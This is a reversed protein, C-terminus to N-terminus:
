VYGRAVRFAELYPAHDPSVIWWFHNPDSFMIIFWDGKHRLEPKGVAETTQSIEHKDAYAYGVRDPTITLIGAGVNTLGGVGMIGGGDANTILTAASFGPVRSVVDRWTPDQMRDEVSVGIFSPLTPRRSFLGM